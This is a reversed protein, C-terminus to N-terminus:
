QKEGRGFQIIRRITHWMLVILFAIFLLTECVEFVYFRVLFLFHSFDPSGMQGGASPQSRGAAIRVRL